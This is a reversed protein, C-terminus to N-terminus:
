AHPQEGPPMSPLGPHIRQNAPASRNIRQMTRALLDPAPEGAPMADLLSLVREAAKVRAQPLVNHHSATYADKGGNGNGNRKGDGKGNRASASSVAARDLLLDIVRRDEEGLRKSM